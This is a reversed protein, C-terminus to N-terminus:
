PVDSGGIRKGSGGRDGQTLFDPCGHQERVRVHDSLMLAQAAALANASRM